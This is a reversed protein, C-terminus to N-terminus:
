VLPHGGKLRGREDLWGSRPPHRVARSIITNNPGRLKEVSNTIKIDIEDLNIRDLISPANRVERPARKSKEGGNGRAM